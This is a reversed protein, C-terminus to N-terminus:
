LESNHNNLAYILNHITLINTHTSAQAHTHAHMHKSYDRRVHNPAKYTENSKKYDNNDNHNNAYDTYEQTRIGTRTHAHMHKSYDGRVHNPAKCVRKMKNKIITITIIIITITMVLTKIYGINRGVTYYKTYQKEEGHGYHGRHPSSELESPIGGKQLRM